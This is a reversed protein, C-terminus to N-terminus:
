QNQTRIRLELISTAGGGLRRALISHAADLLARGSNVLSAFKRGRYCVDIIAPDVNQAV